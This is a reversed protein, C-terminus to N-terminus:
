SQRDSTNKSVDGAEQTNQPKKKGFLSIGIIGGLAGFASFIIVSIAFGFVSWAISGELAGEEFWSQWGNPMEEAYESFRVLMDRVFKESVAQFPISVIVDVVAAVIGTFVGVIAGDGATLDTPSDKALLYAAIMAGGIIWLCCLCNVLPIGSLVGAVAGGILAPVFM